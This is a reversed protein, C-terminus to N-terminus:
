QLQSALDFIPLYMLVVIAGIVVGIGVMLLPEAIRSATDLARQLRTEQLTAIRDLVEPLTGTREAVALMRSTVPDALGAATLAASIALGERLRGVAGSLAARDAGDLLQSCQQLAQVAPVGGRVLLGATRYVQALRYRRSLKGIVPLRRLWAQGHGRRLHAVLSFVAVAFAALILAPVVPQAAVTTGFSMLLRSAWPLDAKSSEILTAFRPVVFGLLFIVVGAGVALLLLPYTAAGILQSRLAQVRREHEAHRLLADVLHGTRESAKVNAILLLPFAGSRSMADSLTRGERLSQGLQGLQRSRAGSPDGAALADIAELMGLGAQLLTGLEEAFAGHDLRDAHVTLMRPLRWPTTPRSTATDAHGIVELGGAQALTRAAEVSAADFGRVTTGSGPARVILKFHM